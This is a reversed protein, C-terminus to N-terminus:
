ALVDLKTPNEQSVYLHDSWTTHVLRIGESLMLAQAADGYRFMYSLRLSTEGQQPMPLRDKNWGLWNLVMQTEDMRAAADYVPKQRKNGFIGFM